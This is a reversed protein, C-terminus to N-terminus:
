DEAISINTPIKERVAQYEEDTTSYFDKGFMNRAREQYIQVYGEKLYFFNRLYTEYRDSDKFKASIVPFQGKGNNVHAMVFDYVKQQNLEGDDDGLRIHLLQEQPITSMDPLLGSERPPPLILPVEVREGSTTEGIYLLKRRDAKRLATHVQRVFGMEQNKHIHLLIPLRRGYDPGAIKAIESIDAATEGIHLKNGAITFTIAASLDEKSRYGSAPLVPLIVKTESVSNMSDFQDDELKTNCQLLLFSFTIIILAAAGLRLGGRCGSHQTTMMTIRKKMFSLNFNHVLGQSNNSILQKLLLIQYEVVSYGSQIIKRDAIYEHITKTSKLLQWIIPNFWWFAAVLQLYLLDITHKEKIHTREHLLIREFEDSDVLPAHAFVYNHFSFPASPHHLKVIKVGDKMLTSNKRITRIIWRISMITRALCFLVGGVYVVSISLFALDFSSHRPANDTESSTGGRTDQEWAQMADYYSKSFTSIQELPPAITQGASEPPLRLLPLALAVLPIMLLVIRNLQFYGERSLLVSYVTYFITLLLTSEIVYLLLTTM